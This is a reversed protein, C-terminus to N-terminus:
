SEEAVFRAFYYVFAVFFVVAESGVMLIGGLQQDRLPDIGWIRPAGVYFDYVPRPLVAFLLGLPSAFVFAAFLYAAKAGSPVDRPEPRLVPWWFVMGALFYSVHELFLLAGNELAAEYVVPVHWAAYVAPWPPLGVLPQTLARVLPPRGIAAAMGTSLGLVALAPAWEALAVNQLLHAVVLYHLALTALPSVVVAVAVIMSAAFCAVQARSAPHRRCARAYAASAVAVVLLEM